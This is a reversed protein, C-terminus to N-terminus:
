AASHPIPGTIVDRYESLFMTDTPAAKDSWGRVLIGARLMSLSSCRDLVLFNAVFSWLVDSNGCFYDAFVCNHRKTCTICEMAKHTFERKKGEVSRQCFYTGQAFTDKRRGDSNSVKKLDTNCDGYAYKATAVTNYTIVKRLMCKGLRNTRLVPLTQEYEIEFSLHSHLFSM